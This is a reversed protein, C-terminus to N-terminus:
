NAIGNRLTSGYGKVATHVVRAGHKQAIEVSGDSSGNDSVVVEGRIRLDAFASLAKDICGGISNAENLCPIVVSVEVGDVDHENTVSHSLSQADPMLSTGGM